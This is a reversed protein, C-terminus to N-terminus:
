QVRRVDQMEIVDPRAAEITLAGDDTMEIRVAEALRGRGQGRDNMELTIFGLAESTDGEPEDGPFYLPKETVIIVTDVNQGPFV